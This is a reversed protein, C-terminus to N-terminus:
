SARPKPGPGTPNWKDVDRVRLLKVRGCASTVPHLHGYRIAQRVAGETVGRREAAGVNTLYPVVRPKAPPKLPMSLLTAPNHSLDCINKKCRLAPGAPPKALGPNNLRHFFLTLPHFSIRIITYYPHRTLTVQM